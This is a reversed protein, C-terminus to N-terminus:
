TSTFVLFCVEVEPWFPVDPVLNGRGGSVVFIVGCDIFRHTELCQVELLSLCHGSLRSVCSTLRCCRSAPCLGPCPPICTFSARDQTASM